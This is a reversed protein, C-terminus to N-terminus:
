VSLFLPHTIRLFIVDITKATIVNTAKKAIKGVIIVETPVIVEIVSMPVFKGATTLITLKIGNIAIIPPTDTAPSM